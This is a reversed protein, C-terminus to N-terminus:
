RHAQETLAAWLDDQEANKYQHKKLYESVGHRFVEEGLFLSMMRLIFSGAM